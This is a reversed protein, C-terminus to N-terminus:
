QKRGGNKTAATSRSSPMGRQRDCCTRALELLDALNQLKKAGLAGLESRIRHQVGSSAHKVLRLGEVTIHVHVVRRDSTGRSKKVLERAELRDLLRTLDPDDAIMRSGIEGSPLGDGGAGRLIRLVNFQTPTLGSEKLAEAVWRVVVQSTRQIAVCVEEELTEFPKTQRLESQLRRQM